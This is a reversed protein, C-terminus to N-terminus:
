KKEFIILYHDSYKAWFRNSFLKEAWILMKLFGRINKFFPELYSPPIKLGIPKIAIIKYQNSALSVLEKPNYYWTPVKVGEVNALVVKTTNRRKAKRFEGKLTFYFREWICFKPMIVLAMKGKSKLLSDSINLFSKLEQPSLCNLGGFNSFILDFKKSFTTSTINRIDLQEFKTTPNSYNQKAIKIMELSIDTALVTHGMKSFTNADFGTGCNLELIHLKNELQKQKNLFHFVRSRQAKGILSNTFVENYNKAHADFNTEM